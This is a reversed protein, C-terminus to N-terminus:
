FGHRKGLQIIKRETVQRERKETFSWCLWLPKGSRCVGVQEIVRYPGIRQGRRTTV